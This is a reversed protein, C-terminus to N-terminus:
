GKYGKARAAKYDALSKWTGDPNRGPVENTVASRVPTIPAPANSVQVPPETSKEDPSSKNELATELKGIYRVAAVPTMKNIKEAEDPNKALHYLLNPGVESTKIADRVWDPVAVNSGSLVSQFDPIAQTAHKVRETWESEIRLNERKAEEAKQEKLVQAREWKKLDDRYKAIDTYKSPDPEEDPVEAPPNLKDQLEANERELREAKEIAERRDKTLKEWRERAERKRKEEPTEEHQEPPETPKAAEPEKTEANAAPAPDTKVEGPPDKPAIDLAKAHFTSLNESTVVNPTREAM